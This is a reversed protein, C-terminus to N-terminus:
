ILKEAFTKLTEKYIYSAALLHNVSANENVQHMSDTTGPFVAGFAFVNPISRAYTGGGMAVAEDNTGMNDNYIKMATQIMQSDHGLNLPKEDYSSDLEFDLKNMNEKLKAIIEKGEFTVPYRIDLTFNIEVPNIDILGLNMTLEGSIDSCNIGMDKGDIHRILHKQYLDILSDELNPYDSKIKKIAEIIANKGLEPRSAHAAKGEIEQESLLEGNEQLQYRCVQPVMNVAEGAKLWNIEIGKNFLKRSKKFSIRIIGKEAFVAPFAADPTYGAYPMEGGIKHYHKMCGFGTEENLGVILRIRCDPKFGEDMLAKMAYLNAIAPGKNDAVGRAFIKGDKIRPEFPDHEWGEGAPVVDLHCLVAIMKDGEGFEAYGVQYDYNHTKFGMTKAIELFQDLADATAKGYPYKETASANVSPISLIKTLDDLFATKYNAMKESIEKIRNENALIKEM